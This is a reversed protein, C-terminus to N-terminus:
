AIVVMSYKVRRREAVLSSQHPTGTTLGLVGKLDQLDNVTIGLLVHSTTTAADILLTKIQMYTRLARPPATLLSQVESGPISLSVGETSSTRSPGEIARQDDDKIFCRIM